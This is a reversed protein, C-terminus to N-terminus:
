LYLRVDTSYVAIDYQPRSCMLDFQSKYIISALLANIGQIITFNYRVSKAMHDLKVETTSKLDYTGQGDFNSQKEKKSTGIASRRTSRPPARKVVAPKKVAPTSKPVSLRQFVSERKANTKLVNKKKTVSATQRTNTTAEDESQTSSDKLSGIEALLNETSSIINCDSSPMHIDKTLKEHLQTRIEHNQVSELQQSVTQTNEVEAQKEHLIKRSLSVVEQTAIERLVQEIDEPLDSPSRVVPESTSSVPAVNATDSNDIPPLGAARLAEQLEAMQKDLSSVMLSPKSTGSSADPHSEKVVTTTHKFIQEPNAQTLSPVHCSTVSPKSISNAKSKSSSTSAAKEDDKIDETSKAELSPEIVEKDTSAVSTESLAPSNSLAVQNDPKDELPVFEAANSKDVLSLSSYSSSKSVAKSESPQM